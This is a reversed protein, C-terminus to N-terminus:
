NYRCKVIAKNHQFFAFIEIVISLSQHDQSFCIVASSAVAAFATTQM